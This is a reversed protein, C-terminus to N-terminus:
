EGFTLKLFDLIVQLTDHDLDPQILVMGHPDGSYKYTQYLTGQASECARASEQDNEGYLCWAPLPPQLSELATVAQNYPITLYAGPSLSLAGVCGGEGEANLWGCGDPAGDAGISAGISAVRTPEVGELSRATTMAAQADLLWKDPLFNQCGNGGECERFTFAFVAYSQGEPIEPFWRPDLWPPVSDYEGQGGLGRNQLWYAIEVWDNQDGGAWHMLVVVPAPNVAAPYYTGQLERGDEAQFTLAQPEPPL